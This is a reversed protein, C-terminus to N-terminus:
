VLPEFSGAHAIIANKLAEAALSLRGEMPDAWLPVAM